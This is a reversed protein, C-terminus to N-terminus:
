DHSNEKLAYNEFRLNAQHLLTPTMTLYVSTAALQHHGLYVSLIPLLKQVDAGQKYWTTLRHVAFTHRLDHLRPQYTAGDTRRVNAQERIRQFAQEMTFQNVSKGNRGIFFYSQPDQSYGDSKRKAAYQTLAQNLQRGLPVLRTKHFKTERITLLAQDIDVDALTLSVTEKIRLGAGYLLLLLIRVMYPELRGRNKQYTFSADLLSRLEQRSYIYPLFPPPRKPVVLPLPSIKIYGRSILYCYFGRLAQHKVHWTATVAGTGRLFKNVQKPKVDSLNAKQGVTRVFHKLIRENTLFLEGLTKHYAVYNTVAKFLNM